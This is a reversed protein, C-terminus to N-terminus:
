TGRPGVASRESRRSARPPPPDRRRRAADARGADDVSDFREEGRLRAVFGVERRSGTSTARRLRARLAELLPVEADEYFTPRRGLSIAAPRVVHDAGAFTGAYIGDAPLCLEPAVALNATPFGLERGRRDGTEVTGRVAHPRGLLM